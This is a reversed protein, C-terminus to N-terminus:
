DRLIPYIKENASVILERLIISTSAIQSLDTEKVVQM